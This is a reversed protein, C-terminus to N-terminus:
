TNLYGNGSVSINSIEDVYISVNSYIEINAFRISSNVLELM